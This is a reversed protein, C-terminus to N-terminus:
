IHLAKGAAALISEHLAESLTPHPFMTAGLEDETAELERALVFSHILETVEPGVMHAGLIEGTEDDVITKIFGESDGLALAKGNGIFPFQGKRITHGAEVAQQETLGVSAIQPFSYTCGPINDRNIAQGHGYGAIKEVALVAEHSAKHALWPGGAVDGIAWVSPINTQGWKDTKVSTGSLEVGAKDLALSDSNGLVGVAVLAREFTEHTAGSATEIVANLASSTPEIATVKAETIFRIGRAEFQKRAYESVEADENPVIRDAVEVVTVQVGFEAFLSAFEIGIAGSGVVLLSEPLRAATMAQRYNWIREGDTAMGSLERPRAGTAIVIHEASVDNEIDDAGVVLLSNASAFRANGYIVDVQNKKLLHAVGKSLQAAVQRSRAIVASWDVGIDSARLGFASASKLLQHIEASRLLAKTPICGWNLCVGGLQEKEVLATRLGLQSARIAAVYGGPGGGIVILDYKSSSM